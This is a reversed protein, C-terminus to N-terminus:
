LSIILLMVVRLASKGSLRGPLKPVIKHRLRGRTIHIHAWLMRHRRTDRHETERWLLSSWTQLVSEVAPPELPPGASAVGVPPYDGKWLLPWRREAWMWHLSSLRGWGASQPSLVAAPTALYWRRRSVESFYGGSGINCRLGEWGLWSGPHKGSRGSRGMSGRRATCREPVPHLGDASISSRSRHLQQQLWEWEPVHGRCLHTPESIELNLKFCKLYKWCM